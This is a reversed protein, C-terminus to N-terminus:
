RGSDGIFRFCQHLSSAIARLGHMWKRGLIANYPSSSNVVIFEVDLRMLSVIVPLVIKGVPYVPTGTFGVM